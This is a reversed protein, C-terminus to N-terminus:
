ARLSRMAHTCNGSRPHEPEDFVPLAFDARKLLHSDFGGQAGVQAQTWHGVASGVRGPRTSRVIVHLRPARAASAQLLLAVASM